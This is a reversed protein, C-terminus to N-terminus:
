RLPKLVILSIGITHCHNNFHYPVIPAFSEEFEKILKPPIDNSHFANEIDAKKIEKLIKDETVEIFSFLTNRPSEVCKILLLSVNTKCKANINVFYSNFHLNHTWNAQM